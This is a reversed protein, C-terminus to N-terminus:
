CFRINSHGRINYFNTANTSDANTGGYDKNLVDLQAQVMANTISNPDTLVIHFVVPITIIAQTRNNAQDEKLKNLKKLSAIGLLEENRNFEQEAGPNERFYNALWEMSGCREATPTIIGFKNQQAQKEPNTKFQAYSNSSMTILLLVIWLIPTTFKKM